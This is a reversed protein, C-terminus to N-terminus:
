DQVKLYPSMQNNVPIYTPTWSILGKVQDKNTEQVDVRRLEYELITGKKSKGLIRVKGNKLFRLDSYEIRIPDSILEAILPFFRKNFGSHGKPCYNLGKIPPIICGEDCFTLTFGRNKNLKHEKINGIYFEQKYLGKRILEYEKVSRRTKINIYDIITPGNDLVTKFKHRVKLLGSLCTAGSGYSGFYITDNVKAYKELIYLIQSWVSASYMNGFNMPVRLQPLAKHKVISFIKEKMSEIQPLSLGLKKLKNLIFDPIISINQMISDIKKFISKKSTYSRLKLLGDINSIWRKLIIQQMCKLPLKSYPAHFIFYDASFDGLNKLLDDYAGLQFNLYSETSYKGFVQAEICNPPRFFDNINGSIKGFKKSFTAIRPNKSIVMAVAGAGQTAEGPSGLEYYSIDAGVVLARNVIGKEVLGIANIIAITAAACANYTDQTISNISIGLLEALINSVSKVAYTMTETGVFIADIKKPKIKGRLLANYSAKLGMSIIDEGIDPVRMERLMLGHRFKDPDVERVKALEEIDIYHRPAYFGISDIGIDSFLYENNLM